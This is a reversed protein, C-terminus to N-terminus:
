HRASRKPVLTVMFSPDDNGDAVLEEYTAGGEDGDVEDDSIDSVSEASRARARKVPGEYELSSHHAARKSKHLPEVVLPLGTCSTGKGGMDSCSDPLGRVNTCDNSAVNRGNSGEASDNARVDGGNVSWASRMKRMHVPVTWVRAVYKETPELVSEDTLSFRDDELIQLYITRGYKDKLTEIVDLVTVQPLDPDYILPKCRAGNLTVAVRVSQPEPELQSSMKVHPRHREQHFIQLQLGKGFM